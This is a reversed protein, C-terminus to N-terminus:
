KTKKNAKYITYGLEKLTEKLEAETPIVKEQVQVISLGRTEVEELLEEDKLGKFRAVKRSKLLTEPEAGVKETIYGRKLLEEIVYEEDKDFWLYQQAEENSITKDITPIEPLSDLFVKVHKLDLDGLFFDRSKSFFELEEKDSTQYSFGRKFVMEKGSPLIVSKRLANRSALKVTKVM